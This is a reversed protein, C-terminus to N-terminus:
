ELSKVLEATFYRTNEVYNKALADIFVVRGKIEEAITEASQPNFQPSVFVTKINEKKAIDILRAIDSASPEKGEEEISIVNLNYERAFYAFSPHYVLFTKKDLLSLNNKIETDLNTLKQIYNAANNEYYTRKEPDIQILGEIMNKVMISANIPSMWIHPDYAGPHDPDAETLKILEINRSCDVILMKTNASSLKDMWALEFEIGSGVKAYINAKALNTIQSPVPEYTHPNAGGPVMASVNIKDGGIEEAFEIQPQITVVMNIKQSPGTAPQACGILITSSIIILIIIFQITRVERGWIISKQPM